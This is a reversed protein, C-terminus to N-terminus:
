YDVLVTRNSAPLILLLEVWRLLCGVQGTLASSYKLGARQSETDRDAVLTPTIWFSNAPGGPSACVRNKVRVCVDCLRPTITRGSKQFWRIRKM